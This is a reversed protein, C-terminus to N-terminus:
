PAHRHSRPAVPQADAEESISEREHIRGDKMVLVRSAAEITQRRHAIVIRTINMAAIAANVQREHEADLHATGEDMVLIRPQRYLARAPFVRQKQGGSLTSGMDGVLTEYRMPMGMIDADIAAATAAARVRDMDPLDDFLAINDALTGAFLTDDQLVAAIQAQYSRLGFRAIPMGDVLVAGDQPEVLGLLLKVLTSKGGGSPGTVAVHEGAAISFTVGTLVLPESPAYRYFVDKFAISGVLPTEIEAGAAFCRDEPSLAIDSLRELHLDLLRFAIGQDILSAARGLFQGKYALYALLMGVSFGAGTLVMRMGLWLTLIGELGFILGNASGQWIGIRSIRLDANVADTLRSQWLAHRFVERGFLRLTTIGRLSEILTTQEKGHLVIASARAERELAFSILGVLVYLVLAAVAIATLAPSYFLMLSVTLLAMLGDVVSSIAGQILMSQIPAISQFRSLIDGTHRKDFWDISLRFLRRVVNSALSTGLTAGAALLVFSRLWAAAVNLITLLGFGLALVALLDLDLAPLAKDIAIQLYYPSALSFAQLVLSLALVQALMRRLGTMRRWLQSLHLRERQDGKEFSDSVRLELAVGTFHRSVESMELWRSRGDPDHILARGRRARELVVFHKLDWHLVAPVCVQHLEDLPVKVARPILGIYGALSMLSRLKTGRLSPAFRRRLTGLDIDLGHYSAVMALCALGCEAMETQRALKVRPRGIMGVDLLIGNM